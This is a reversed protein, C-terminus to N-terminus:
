WVSPLGAGARAGCSRRVVVTTALTERTPERATPDQLADLLRQTARRGFEAIDVHVSTLSPHVYRAMPIDDFGAVGVDGPVRLGAERLASLAGFAMCDNAAFVATAPPGSTLWRRVAAHGSAESFDGPLELAADAVLGLAAVAERYGRLREAADHNHDAGRIMAIRRHGVDALHRVMDRAGACNAVELSDCPVDSPPGSLRVVPFGGPLSRRTAAADLEPAMVLLGDVRGRMSRLVPELQRAASSASSLLVHYGGAQATQDIGRILGSFFEGYFDTLLVGITHTRNTVLSRAAGHPSYGLRQATRRVRQRTEERVCRHGNYVRSVTAVSVGATRAVEKITVM